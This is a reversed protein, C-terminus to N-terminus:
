PRNKLRANPLYLSTVIEASRNSNVTALLQNFGQFNSLRYLLKMQDQLILSVRFYYIHELNLLQSKYMKALM